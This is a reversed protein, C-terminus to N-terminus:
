KAWVNRMTATAGPENKKKFLAKQWNKMTEYATRFFPKDLFMLGYRLADACNHVVISDTAFNGFRTTLCYTDEYGCPEVSVVRHNYPLYVPIRNEGYGAFISDEPVGARRRRLAVAKCNPHCYKDKTAGMFLQHCVLCEKEQRKYEGLGYKQAHERHWKRGAESRHWDSAKDRVSDLQHKNQKRYLENYYNRIAAQSRRIRQAETPSPRNKAHLACHEARTMLILNGPHNNMKDEDVHHVNLKWTDEIHGITDEYVMIQAGWREKKRNLNIVLHGSRHIHRYLPMLSDGPKLDRLERYSGNRMMILHDPTARLTQGNDLTLQYIEANKRTLRPNYFETVGMRKEANNWGYCYGSKGILDKIPVDGTVTAILTDGTVCHDDGDTNLDEPNKYSTVLSPISEICNICNSCFRLYPEGQEPVKLFEKFTAWGLVRDNNGLTIHEIGNDGYIDLVSHFTNLYEHTKANMAPDVITIYVDEESLGWKNMTNRIELAQASPVLGAKYIEDFVLVSGGKDVYLFLCVFPNTTGYDICRYIRGQDKELRFERADYVHHFKSFENFFIGGMVDWDGRLWMAKRVEDLSKLYRVYKTDFNTLHKNDFVLAPIFQLTNGDEDTFPKNPHLETYEVQYTDDHITNGPIPPCRDIFRKRIWVHGVGGPNTTYRKYPKLEPNVTRISGGLDRIWSEPFQNLEEVGLYHFNGGIYKQVDALNDCYALHIKAGSPFIFAKQKERWVAGLKSYIKEAEPKFNMYIDDFTRRIIIARYEPYDISYKDVVPVMNSHTGEYHWKRVKLAADVILAATKGGGRAGGYLVEDVESSLFLEQKPYPQFLADANRDNQAADNANDSSPLPNIKPM